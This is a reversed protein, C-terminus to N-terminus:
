KKRKKGCYPCRTSRIAPAYAHHIRECDMCQLKFYKNELKKEKPSLCEVTIQHHKNVHGPDMSHGVAARKLVRVLIFLIVAIAVVAALGKWGYLKFFILAPAIMAVTIVREAGFVATPIQRDGNGLFTTNMVKEAEIFYPDETPTYAKNSEHEKM